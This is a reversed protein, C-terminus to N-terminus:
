FKQRPQAPLLVDNIMLLSRPCDLPCCVGGPYKQCIAQAGPEYVVPGHHTYLVTDVVDPKGKVKITEIRSKVPKWQNDYWYAQHSADKFRIKYFDLVDAGVNTVGWAIDRNFGIIVNPAGPLTAGYVNVNPSVLQMQYWISPLSLTLHPDNSLLPLGTASKQGSVAWNNSGIEPNPRRFGRDFELSLTM